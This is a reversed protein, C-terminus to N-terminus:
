CGTTFNIKISRHSNLYELEKVLHGIEPQSTPDPQTPPSWCGAQSKDLPTGQGPDCCRPPLPAQEQNSLGSFDEKGLKCLPGM